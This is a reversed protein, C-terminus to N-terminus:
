PLGSIKMLGAVFGERFRPNTLTKRSLICTSTSEFSLFDRKRTGIDFAIRWINNATDQYMRPM